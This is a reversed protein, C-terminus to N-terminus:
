PLLSTLFEDLLNLTVRTRYDATSRIDDIPSIETVIASKAEEITARDLERDVLVAETRHCRIPMPAVSGLAIRIREITGDNVKALGALAVKSIAQAKRTGVKRLYHVCGATTRPLSIHSIIEDREMLNTKYGTHFHSYRLWRPDRESLLVIDADYVLLAPPSDAAPSGNAINGALTGRNQTAVAGTWSAARVLLPFEARMLESRQIQTYTTLAGLTVHTESATIGHLEPIRWLGVLNRYPLQGAEFLVMLDTGGAIPRWVGPERALLRLVQDVTGPAEDFIKQYGTCRCLNGALGARIQEDTPHPYQKLLQYSALIMGPTCIGCQTGGTEAFAEQLPHLRGNKELGEVTLINRGDVQLVPVLCSNVLEGDLLVACAGCEGEGCGEKTGTLGLDERLVDLLRAMPYSEVTRKHGNVHLEIRLKGL